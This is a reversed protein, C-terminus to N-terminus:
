IIKGIIKLKRLIFIFITTAILVAFTGIYEWYHLLGVKTLLTHVENAFFVHFIYIYLSEERGM